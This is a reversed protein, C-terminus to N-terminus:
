NAREADRTAPVDGFYPVGEDDTGKYLPRGHAGVPPAAAGEKLRTRLDSYRQAAELTREARERRIDDDTLQRRLAPSDPAAADDIRSPPPRLEGFVKRRELSTVIGNTVTIITLWPDHEEPGPIYHLRFRTAGEVIRAGYDSWALVGGGVETVMDPEGARILVESEDMGRRLANFTGTDIQGAQVAGAALFIASLVRRM